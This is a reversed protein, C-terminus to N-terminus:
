VRRRNLELILYFYTTPIKTGFGYFQNKCESINAPSTTLPIYSYLAVDPM